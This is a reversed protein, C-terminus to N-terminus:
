MATTKKKFSRRCGAGGASCVRDRWCISGVPGSLWDDSALSSSNRRAGNCIGMGSAWAGGAVAAWSIDAVSGALGPQALQVVVVTDTMKQLEGGFRSRFIERLRQPINGCTCREAPLAALSLRAGRPVPALQDAPTHGHVHLFIKQLFRMGAGRQLHLARQFDRGSHRYRSRYSSSEWISVSANANGGSPACSRM